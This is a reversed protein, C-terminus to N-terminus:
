PSKRTNYYQPLTIDETNNVPLESELQPNDAMSELVLKHVDGKKRNLKLTKLDLVGWRAVAIKPEDCEGEVVKLMEYNDTVLARRYERMTEPAVGETIELLKAEVVLRAAPKRNDLRAQAATAHAKAEKADLARSYIAIAELTGPWNQGRAYDDGFVLPAPAWPQLNGTVALNAAAVRGDVYCVVKGSEYTVLVHQAAGEKLSGLSVATKDDHQSTRLHLMLKNKLMVLAFNRKGAAGYAM